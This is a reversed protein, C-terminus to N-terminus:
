ARGRRAISLLIGIAAMTLVLSSGGFSILPLPVGTIPLMGAVAAMNVLAQIGIWGTIGGALLMGFRDPAKKAIRIGLYIFFVFLLLVSLTGVLGLEEGIIAFIFDTHANPIYSWKQRSAGLGVGFIGGSGLAIQGQINQYGANLPDAWPNLFAKVRAQRYGANLSLAAAGLISTASLAAIHLGRAGALYIVVFGCAGVIVTTGMDPQAMILMGVIGLVLLVPLAMEKFDRIKRGKRELVHATFLVVALKAMESPQVTIPGLALWRSSGARSLGVGPVLVAVLLAITLGMLPGAFRHLKRYDTRSMVLMAAIGLAAGLIQRNFFLFSSGYRKFAEVSSASLIMTLGVVLMTVTTVMLLSYPRGLRSMQPIAPAEIRATTM